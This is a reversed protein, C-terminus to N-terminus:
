IKSKSNIPGGGEVCSVIRSIVDASKHGDWEPALELHTVGLGILPLMKNPLHYTIPKDGDLNVGAIFYGDYGSGDHHKESYWSNNLLNLVMIFLLDRHSYLDEFTHDGDSVETALCPLILINQKEGILLDTVNCPLTIQNNM